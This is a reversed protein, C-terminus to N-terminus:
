GFLFFGLVARAPLLTAMPRYGLYRSRSGGKELVMAFAGLGLSSLQSGASGLIFQSGRM